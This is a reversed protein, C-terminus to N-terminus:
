KKATITDSSGSEVGDAEEAEDCKVPEPTVNRGGLVLSDSLESGHEQGALGDVQAAEAVVAGVTEIGAETGNQEKGPEDHRVVESLYQAWAGGRTGSGAGHQGRRDIMHFLGDFRSRRCRLTQDRPKGEKWDDGTLALDVARYYNQHKVEGMHYFLVTIPEASHATVGVVYGFEGDENSGDVVKVEQHLYQARLEMIDYEENAM